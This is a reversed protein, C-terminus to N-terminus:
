TQPNETDPADSEEAFLKQRNLKEKDIRDLKERCEDESLNPNMIKFKEWEEILGLNLQKEINALTEADSILVKPKRYSVSLNESTFRQANEVEQYARIIQFVENEVNSYEAQHAEVQDSVDAQAISRDLGSTFERVNGTLFEGGSIGNEDLIGRVYAALAERQGTLDPNANIYSVDPQPDDANDSLVLDIVTHLGAHVEQTKQDGVVKRVLHGHGQKAAASQLDSLSVNMTTSQDPLPSAVPYGRGDGACRYSFPVLGLPNINNPNGEIPVYTLGTPGSSRVMVHHTDSWLAYEKHGERDYSLIMILVQGTNDDVIVDFEYAALPLLNIQDGIKNVWLAAHKDRVFYKDFIRFQRNFNADKAIQSYRETEDESDLGRLPDEKYARAIKNVVKKLLSIDSVRMLSHTKPYLRALETKVYQAQAGEMIQRAKYAHNKRTQNKTSEIEKIIKIVNTIQTLDIAM